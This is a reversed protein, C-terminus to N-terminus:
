KKVINYREWDFVIEKSDKVEQKAWEFNHSSIQNMLDLYDKDDDSEKIFHISANYGYKIITKM